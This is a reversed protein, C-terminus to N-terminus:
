DHLHRRRTRHPHSDSSESFVVCGLLYNDRCSTEPEPEASGPVQPWTLRPVDQGLGPRTAVILRDAAGPHASSRTWTLWCGAPADYRRYAGARELDERGHGGSLLGVGVGREGRPWCTGCRTASWWRTPSTWASGSLPLWSCTRTSSPMAVQDRTVVPVDAPPSRSYKWPPGRRRWCGAPSVAWPVQLCRLHQLLQHADPLLRVWGVRRGYAEAHAQHLRAVLEADVPQGTERLLAGVFLGGSM